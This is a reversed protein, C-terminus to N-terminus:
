GPQDDKLWIGDSLGRDLIEFIGEQCIGEDKLLAIVVGVVVLWWGM